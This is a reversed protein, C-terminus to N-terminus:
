SVSFVAVTRFCGEVEMGSPLCASLIVSQRNNNALQRNTRYENILNNEQVVNPGYPVPSPKKERLPALVSLNQVVNSVYPVVSQNYGEVASLIVSQRNNNALRRNM